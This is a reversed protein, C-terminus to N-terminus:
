ASESYIQAELVQPANLRTTTLTLTVHAWVTVQYGSPWLTAARTEPAFRRELRAFRSSRQLVGSAIRLAEAGPTSKSM